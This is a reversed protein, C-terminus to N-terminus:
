HTSHIHLDENITLASGIPFNGKKATERPENICIADNRWGERFFVM